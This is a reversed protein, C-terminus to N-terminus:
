LVAYGYSPQAVPAVIPAGTRPQHLAKPRKVQGTSASPLHPFAPGWGSGGQRDGEGDRPRAQPSALVMMM